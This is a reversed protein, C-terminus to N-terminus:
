YRKKKTFLNGLWIFVGIGIIWGLFNDNTKDKQKIQKAREWFIIRKNHVQNIIIEKLEEPSINYPHNKLNIEISKHQGKRYFEEKITDVPHTVLIEFHIDIGDSTVSIDPIVSEFKNELRPNTYFLKGKPIVIESNDAIIHKALKHLATEQGGLCDSEIHHRFHWERHKVSKGQVAVMKGRCKVCYCNCSLGNSVNNIHVVNDTIKDIAYKIITAM